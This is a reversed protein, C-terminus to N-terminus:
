IELVLSDTDTYVVSVKDWKKKVYGYHFNFMLLKSLDLTTMGAYIPKNM